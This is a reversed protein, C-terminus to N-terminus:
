LEKIDVEQIDEKYNGDKDWFGLDVFITEM